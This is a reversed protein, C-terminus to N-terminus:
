ENDDQLSKREEDLLHSAIMAAAASIGLLLIALQVRAM